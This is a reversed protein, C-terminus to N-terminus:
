DGHAKPFSPQGRKPLESRSTFSHGPPWSISSSGWVGQHSGREVLFRAMLLSQALLKAFPDKFALLKSLAWLLKFFVVNQYLASYFSWNAEMSTYLGLLVTPILIIEREGDQLEALDNRLRPVACQIESRIRWNKHPLLILIQSNWKKLSVQCGISTFLQTLMKINPEWVNVYLQGAHLFM